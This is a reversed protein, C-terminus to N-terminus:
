RSSRGTRTSGHADAGHDRDQGQRRAQAQRAQDLVPSGRCVACQRQGGVWVERCPTFIYTHAPMYAVFDDLTM